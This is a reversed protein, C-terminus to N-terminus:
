FSELEHRLVARFFCKRVCVYIVRLKFHMNQELNKCHINLLYTILIGMIYKMFKRFSGRKMASVNLNKVRIKLM